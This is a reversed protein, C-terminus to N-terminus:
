CLTKSFYLFLLIWCRPGVPRGATAKRRRVATSMAAAVGLGGTACWRAEVVVLGAYAVVVLGSCAVPSGGSGGGHWIQIQSSLGVRSRAHRSIHLLVGRRLGLPPLPRRATAWLLCRRLGRSAGGDYILQVALTRSIEDGDYVLQM